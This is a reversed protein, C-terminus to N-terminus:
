VLRRKKTTGRLKALLEALRKKESEDIHLTPSHLNEMCKLCNSSSICLYPLVSYFTPMFKERLYKCRDGDEVGYRIRSLHDRWLGINLYLNKYTVRKDMCEIIKLLYDCVLEVFREWDLDNDDADHLHLYDALHSQTEAHKNKALMKNTMKGFVNEINEIDTESLVLSTLELALTQIAKNKVSDDYGSQEKIWISNAFLIFSSPFIFPVNKEEPDTTSSSPTSSGEVLFKLDMESLCRGWEKLIPFFDEIGSNGDYDCGRLQSLWFLWFELAARCSFTSINGIVFILYEVFSKVTDNKEDGLGRVFDIHRQQSASCDEHFVASVAHESKIFTLWANIHYKFKTVYQHDGYKHFDMLSSCIKRIIDRSSKKQGYVEFLHDLDRSVNLKQLAEYRSGHETESIETLKQIVYQHIETGYTEPNKPYRQGAIKREAISWEKVCARIVNPPIAEVWTQLIAALWWIFDEPDVGDSQANAVGSLSEICFNFFQNQTIQVSEHNTWIYSTLSHLEPLVLGDLIHCIINTIEFNTMNLKGSVRGIFDNIIKVFSNNIDRNEKFLM